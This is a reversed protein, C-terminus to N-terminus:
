PQVEEWLHAVGLTHTWQEIYAHDCMTKALHRVDRLQFDSHSDAAWLLKSIILDERSAIWAPFGEVVVRQRRAFELQRYPADKRVIIDVKIVSDQHILNFLSQRAISDRVSERSIYYDPHFLAVVRETDAGTLEVVLDIDRTMRPEAYYNLAMSGTIMYPIGATELRATADQMVEIENKM